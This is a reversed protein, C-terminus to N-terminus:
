TTLRNAGNPHAATSSRDFWYDGAALYRSSPDTVARLDDPRYTVGHPGPQRDGPGAAVQGPRHPVDTPLAFAVKVEPQDKRRDRELM